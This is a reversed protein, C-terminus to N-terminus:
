LRPVLADLAVLLLRRRSCEDRENSGITLEFGGRTPAKDGESDPLTIPETDVLSLRVQWAEEGMQRVRTVRVSPECWSFQVGRTKARIADFSGHINTMARDPARGSLSDILHSLADGSDGHAVHDEPQAVATAVENPSAVQTVFTKAVSCTGSRSPTPGARCTAEGRAEWPASVSVRSRRSRPPIHLTVLLLQTIAPRQVIQGQGPATGNVAGITM